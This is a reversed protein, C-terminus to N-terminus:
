SLSLDIYSFCLLLYIIKNSLLLNSLLLNINSLLLRFTSTYNRIIDSRFVHM